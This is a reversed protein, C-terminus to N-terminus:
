KIGTGKKLIKQLLQHHEENTKIFGVSDTIHKWIKDDATFGHCGACANVRLIRDQEEKNFPRAGVHSTAQLQTGMEDVIRELEFDINLGNRRSNYIGTGLGLAKPNAHCDECSRAEKTITHPQIPNHSIGSVGDYTTFIKNHVKIKGDRDIQTFIAQCGPIFPSVKGKANIGLTPSEWRLYSRTERWKMTSNRRNKKLGSKSIDEPQKTDIWGNSQETLDQQAHCGYCQPAWRAHCAYCELKNMHVDIGMATCALESGSEVIDKVQPVVLEKKTIKTQLIIKKSLKRLNRIENGQSTELNSIRTVTGHCDTCEIEVAQERKSYINGDGHLDNSTHCDICEMGREYHVDATLHNYYKGHLKKGGKKGPEQSWPSGYADSEMTGIYSVGTRGGRNHCHICQQSPIKKTIKHFKPRDTQKKSIAKDKGEYTGKDSYLVHCAACGSARYDGDREHGSSWIHCRLCQDRLYDDAPHNLNTMPKDPKYKPLQKLSILAGKHLPVEGDKDVASYTAYIANKTEQAAWTYRTGSIMGAMTAHLSKKSRAVHDDHCNGCIEDVVRFDSPNAWMGKHAEEQKTVKANGQHCDECSLEAMDPIDSIPEIGEHCTVCEGNDPEYIETTANSEGFLCVMSIMMSCFVTNSIFIINKKMNERRELTKISTDEV